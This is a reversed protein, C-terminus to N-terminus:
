RRGPVLDADGERAHHDRLDIHRSGHKRGREHEQHPGQRGPRLLWLARGRRRHRAYARRRRVEEALAPEGRCRRVGARVDRRVDIFFLSLVKIGRPALELQRQLHDEITRRIQARKVAEDAVDGVAQGKELWEGNTFEIWEDGDAASINSVIWGAEYDTNEGSKDFLSDHTRVTVAKRKQSGDKQRVDITLRATISGPTKGMRTSDLRVYAGNLDAQALVSDVCIGKVLGQQYADVPTLRYVKNYGEKHTASYRLVFLPNLSRIAAKAKATNDVSQPEDIIVIPNCAAVVERPSRGGILRESPRHFLSSSEANGDNSYDRNFAQINIIMVQISSSTAFNGVPGMDKSDYVFVDMPSNDYLTAFHKKTSQFSKLVGERIAVSPVVILFKTIGYKKNLEFITRTYVYTKGTGTEMEITFDRLKGDTLVNTAPLSNEEQIDHLNELLQNASLRLGNAHGVSLVQGEMLTGAAGTEATFESKLFEQGRFLDTIAEVAEVQHRQDASYKLELTAM